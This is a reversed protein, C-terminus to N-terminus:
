SANKEKKNKKDYKSRIRSLTESTIGLYNAVYKLPIRNVCREYSKLFAYYKEDSLLGKLYHAREIYRVYYQEMFIRAIAEIEHSGKYLNELESYKIRLLEVDEISEYIDLGPKKLIHSYLNGFFCGEEAFWDILEKGSKHYYVRIIGKSIFYLHTAVDGQKIIQTNKEFVVSEFAGLIKQINKDSVPRKTSKIIETLYEKPELDHIKTFYKSM